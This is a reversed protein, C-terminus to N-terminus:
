RRARLTVASHMVKGLSVPCSDCVPIAVSLRYGVSWTALGVCGPGVGSSQDMAVAIGVRRVVSVEVTWKSTLWTRGGSGM